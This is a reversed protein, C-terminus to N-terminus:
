DDTLPNRHKLTVLSGDNKQMVVEDAGHIPAYSLPFTDLPQEGEPIADEHIIIRFKGETVEFRLLNEYKPLYFDMLRKLSATPDIGAIVDRRVEYTANAIQAYIRSAQTPTLDLM